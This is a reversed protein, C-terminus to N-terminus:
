RIQDIRNDQVYKLLEDIKFILKGGVRFHPINCRSTAKYLWSISKGLVEAADEVDLLGFERNPKNVKKAM